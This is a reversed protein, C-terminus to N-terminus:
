ALALHRQLDFEGGSRYVAWAWVVIKRAAAVLALLHSKGRERLRRYFRTLPSQVQRLGGRAAAVLLSRWRPPGQKSIHGRPAQKGSQRICPDLGLYAVLGKVDQRGLQAWRLILAVLVNVSKEGVGPVSLLRRRLGDLQPFDRYLHSIHKKTRKILRKLYQIHEDLDRIEPTDPPIGRRQYAELRNQERRWEAELEQLREALRLLRQAPEPWPQWLHLDKFHEAGYLALMESDLPDTKARCGRSQQWQRVQRPNPYLIHQQHEYLWHMLPLEYGGCPEIVWVVEQGQSLRQVQQLLSDFKEPRNPFSGLRQPHAEQDSQLLAVTLNDKSGDVGVFLM